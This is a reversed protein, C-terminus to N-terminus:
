VHAADPVDVGLEHLLRARLPGRGAETERAVDLSIAIKGSRMVLIRDAIAIAEDVDHTVLLVGPHHRAVLERILVHMKIRTLADLAAFPEDLLLLGPERVLARALAVRQAQGGSLNLPWDNERGALGVEGLANQALVRGTATNMGLAVNEWLPLWAMLRHEQFVVAIEGTSEITGDDAEDLGALARLLTTKGCGSEGLLAVFEGTGIALDLGDIVVREGYQRRLGRVVVAHSNPSFEGM